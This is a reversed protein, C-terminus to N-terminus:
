YRAQAPILSGDHWDCERRGPLACVRNYSTGTPHVLAQFPRQPVSGVAGAPRAVSASCLNHLRTALNAIRALRHGCVTVSVYTPCPQSSKHVSIRDPNREGTKCARYDSPSFRTPMIPGTERLLRTLWKLHLALLGSPADFNSAVRGFAQARFCASATKPRRVSVEDAHGIPPLPITGLLLRLLRETRFRIILPPQSAM